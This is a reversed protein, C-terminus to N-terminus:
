SRAWRRGSSITSAARRRHAPRRHRPGLRDRGAGRDAAQAAGDAPDRGAEERRGLVRREPVAVGARAAGQLREMAALLETRFEKIPIPDDEGATRAGQAARQDRQAPLEDGDRGPDRAPVPLRPLPRAPRARRGGDRRRGRRRAPDRGRHDRLGPPGDARLRADVQGLREPGHDRAEREPGVALDVGKVIETGDELAVHLNKIELLAVHRNGAEVELPRAARALRRPWVHNRRCM